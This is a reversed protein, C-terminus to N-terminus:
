LMNCYKEIEQEIKLQREKKQAKEGRDSETRIRCDLFVVAKPKM